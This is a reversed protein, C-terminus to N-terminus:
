NMCRNFGDAAMERAGDGGSELAEIVMGHFAMRFEDGSEMLFHDVLWGADAPHMDREMIGLTVGLFLTALVTCHVETFAQQEAPTMERDEQAFAPVNLAAILAITSLTLKM